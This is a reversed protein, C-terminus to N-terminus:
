APADGEAAGSCGQSRLFCGPLKDGHEGIKRRVGCVLRVRWFICVFCAQVCPSSIGMSVSREACVM